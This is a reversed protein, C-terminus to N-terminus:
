EVDRGTVVQGLHVAPHEPVMSGSKLRAIYDRYAAVAKPAFFLTVPLTAILLLGTGTTTIADLQRDTTIFGLTTVATMSCYLYRYFTVWRVGFLYVVGQEGYYGWSIITSLAFMWAAITVLWKGLWPHTQNFALATLSAGTYSQYVGLSDFRPPTKSDVAAFRAAFRGGDQYVIGNLKVKKARKSSDTVAVVMFLSVETQWHESSNKEPLIQDPVEWRRDRDSATETTAITDVPLFHPSVPLVVDPGRNWVGSTLIVLATITCVVLTDVFPELAAVLGERVPEDTKAASHAIASSGQGVESSYLARKMGWLFAAGATGGLFAGSAHVPAFASRFILGFVEPLSGINLIVVYFGAILYTLCMFPVLIGTVHGIRKVGGILVSGVAVALIMGVLLKPWGFYAHTVDAVNWAQFMNGGTFTGIVLMVCIFGGLLKGFGKLGPHLEAFGYRAVWMMGGHPNDPDTVNRYQMALTVEVLKVAMGLLGVMWMWFLAGPGGIGIALAVGGINGLGVTASLATSLAQFHNIAGPDTPNDYHGLTVAAGHTLARYQVSVSWVTFLVGVSLVVYLVSDHWLYSNVVGIFSYLEPM